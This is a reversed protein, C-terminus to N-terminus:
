KGNFFQQLKEPNISKLIRNAEKLKFQTADEINEFDGKFKRKKVTLAEMIMIHDIWTV